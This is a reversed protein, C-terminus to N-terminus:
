KAESLIKKVQEQNSTLALFDEFDNGFKDWGWEMFKQQGMSALLTLGSKHIAELMIIKNKHGAGLWKAVRVTTGLMLPGTIIQIVGEAIKDNDKQEIGDMLTKYGIVSGYAVALFPAGGLWLGLQVVTDFWFPYKKRLEYIPNLVRKELRESHGTIKERERREWDTVDYNIKPTELEENKGDILITGPSYKLLPSPKQCSYNHFNKTKPKFVKGTNYFRYGYFVDGTGVISWEKGSPSLQPKGFQRVCEPYSNIDKSDGELLLKLQSETIIIKM